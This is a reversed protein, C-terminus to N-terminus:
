EDCIGRKEIFNMVYYLIEKHVDMISRSADIIIINTNLFKKMNLYIERVKQLFDINKEFLDKRKNSLRKIAEDVPIDLIIVLDPMPAFKEHNNIIKAIPIGSAGQYAITSIFYRDIIVIKGEKLAPEIKENVHEMRDRVFLEYVEQSKIDSNKKLLNRIKEGIKGETPEHSLLVDCNKKRLADYLLLCQTTKGSGDIGEIAILVGRKVKRM